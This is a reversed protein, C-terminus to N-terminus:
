NVIEVGIQERRTEILIYRESNHLYVIEVKLGDLYFYSCDYITLVRDDLKITAQRLDDDIEIVGYKETDFKIM